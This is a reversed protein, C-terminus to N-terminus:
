NTFTVSNTCTTTNAYGATTLATNIATPLTSTTWAGTPYVALGLTDTTSSTYEYIYISALQEVTQIITLLQSTSFNTSSAASVTFFDLKPGQAQVSSGSTVANAGANTFSTADIRFVPNLDGNTRTFQTM